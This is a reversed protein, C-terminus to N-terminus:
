IFFIKSNNAKIFADIFPVKVLDYAVIDSLNWYCFNLRLFTKSCPNIKIGGSQLLLLHHLNFSCM